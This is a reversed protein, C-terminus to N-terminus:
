FSPLLCAHPLHISPSHYLCIVPAHSLPRLFTPLLLSLQHFNLSPADLNPPYFVFPGERGVRWKVWRRM